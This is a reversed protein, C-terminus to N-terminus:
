RGESFVVKLFDLRILPLVKQKHSVKNCIFSRKFLKMFKYLYKLWFVSSNSFNITLKSRLKSYMKFLFRYGLTTTKIRKLHEDLASVLSLEQDKSFKYFYLKTAAKGRKWGNICKYFSSIYADESEFM